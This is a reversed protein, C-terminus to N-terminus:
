GGALGPIWCIKSACCSMRMGSLRLLFTRREVTGLRLSVGLHRDLPVHGSLVTVPVDLLDAAVVLDSPSLEQDGSSPTLVSVRLCVSRRRWGDETVDSAALLLAIRDAPSSPLTQGTM